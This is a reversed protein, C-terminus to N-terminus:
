QIIFSFFCRLTMSLICLMSHGCLLLMVTLFLPRKSCVSGSLLCEILLCESELIQIPQGWCHQFLMTYCFSCQVCTRLCPVLLVCSNCLVRKCFLVTLAGSASLKTLSVSQCFYSLMVTVFSSTYAWLHSVFKLVFGKSIFGGSRSCSSTCSYTGIFWGGVRLIEFFQPQLFCYGGNRILFSRYFTCIILNICSIILM